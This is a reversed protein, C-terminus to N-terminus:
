NEHRSHIARRADDAPQAGATLAVTVTARAFGDAALPLSQQVRLEDVNGGGRDLRHLGEAV